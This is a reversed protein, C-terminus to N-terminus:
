NVVAERLQRPGPQSIWPQLTTLTRGLERKTRQSNTAVALSVAELGRAAAEDPEGSYALSSALRALFYGRDRRSLLTTALVETYLVAAQQPKGAEVYCSATRLTLTGDNFYTGLQDRPSTNVAATALRRADDLKQEVLRMAEGTMALGRAEQQTVEARVNAPLQWPGEQAAQALTLVRVADREDYAMQSRKLLIYGQMPLDCAEQAWETARDYWFRARHPDHVDRFLWGAFEAGRAGVSLLERRVAPRVERASRDILSLLNLVSRLPKRPGETGDDAICASLQRRFFEVTSDVFNTSANTLAAELHALEQPALAPWLATSLAQTLFSRRNLLNMADWETAAASGSPGGAFSTSELLTSFGNSKAMGPVLLEDLHSPVVPQEPSGPTAAEPQGAARTAAPQSEADPVKFWLLDAPIGLIHAWQMLQSFDNLPQGNEIRSLQAQTRHSWRAVVTQSLPDGHFPHLRFARIVHGMHRSDLANRLDPNQWFEPPVAPPRVHLDRAAKQCQHCRAGQNDRALQTGCRCRRAQGEFGM